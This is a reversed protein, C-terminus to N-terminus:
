KPLVNLRAFEGALPLIAANYARAADTEASYNGVFFYKGECRFAVRWKEKRADWSVGKYQSSGGRSGTNQQNQANTSPRLNDRRNNLGDEDIHDVHKLGLILHHMKVKTARNGGRMPTAHAYWRTGNSTNAAYWRYPAILPWDEDDIRAVKGQTLEVEM